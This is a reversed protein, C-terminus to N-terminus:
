SSEVKMYTWSRQDTIVHSQSSSMGLSNASAFIKVTAELQYTKQGPGQYGIPSGTLQVLKQITFTTGPNVTTPENQMVRSAYDTGDVLLTIEVKEVTVPTRTPNNLPINYIFITDGLEARHLAVHNVEATGLTNAVATAPNVLYYAAVMCVAVALVLLYRLRKEM